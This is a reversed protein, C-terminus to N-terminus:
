SAALSLHIELVYQWHGVEKLPALKGYRGSRLLTMMSHHGSRPPDCPGKTFSSCKHNFWEGLVEDRFAVVNHSLVKSSEEGGCPFAWPKLQM